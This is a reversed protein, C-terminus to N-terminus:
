LGPQPKAVGPVVARGTAVDLGRSTLTAVTIGGSQVTTVLGQEALWALDQEIRDSSVVHGVADAYRRLLIGNTRYQAANELAKLLVLRRDATEFEAFSM